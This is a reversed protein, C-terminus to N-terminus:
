SSQIEVQAAFASAARAGDRGAPHVGRPLVLRRAGQLAIDCDASIRHQRAAISGAALGRSEVVVM